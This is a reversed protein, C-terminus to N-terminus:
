YLDSLSINSCLLSPLRVFGFSYVALAAIAHALTGPGFVDMNFSTVILDWLFYGAALAQIMGSAGTYGWVREQVDMARREDDFFIVWLALANILLSQFMSVVHADWNIRRGRPLANYSKGVFLKSILPSVPWYIFTYLLASAFVEHIHYPLSPMALASAYPRTAEVLWPIPELPFPDRM